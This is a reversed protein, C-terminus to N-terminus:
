ILIINFLFNYNFNCRSVRLLVLIIEWILYFEWRMNTLKESIGTLKLICSTAVFSLGMYKEIYYIVQRRQIKMNTLNSLGKTSEREFVNEWNKQSGLKDRLFYNWTSGKDIFKTGSKRATTPQVSLKNQLWPLTITPMTIKNKAASSLAGPCQRCVSACPLEPKLTILPQSLGLEFSLMVPFTSHWKLCEFLIWCVPRGCLHKINFNPLM